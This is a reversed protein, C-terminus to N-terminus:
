HNSYKQQDDDQRPGMTLDSLFQTPTITHDSGIFVEWKRNNNQTVEYACRLESYCVGGLIFVILRPGSRVAGRGPYMWKGFERSSTASNNPVISRQGGVSPFQRQDLREDIIDEMIDKVYPTWRSNTYTTETREKRPQPINRRRGARSQNLLKDLNEETIGNKHLIYLMIIRLKDNIDIVTDLLLPVINRMHDKIREGEPDTGMALN